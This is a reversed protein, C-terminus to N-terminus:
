DLPTCVYMHVSRAQSAARRPSCLQQDQHAARGHPRAYKTGATPAQHARCCLAPRRGVRRAKDGRGRSQRDARWQVDRFRACDIDFHSADAAPTSRRAPTAEGGCYDGVGGAEQPNSRVGGGGRFRDRALWAGIRSSSRLRARAEGGHRQRDKDEFRGEGLDLAGELVEVLRAHLSAADTHGESARLEEAVTTTWERLREPDLTERRRRAGAADARAGGISDWAEAITRKAGREAEHPALFPGHWRIPALTAPHGALTAIMRDLTDLDTKLAGLLPWRRQLASFDLFAPGSEGPGRLDDLCVIGATAFNYAFASLSGERQRMKSSCRRTQSAGFPTGRRSPTM